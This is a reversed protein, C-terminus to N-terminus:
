PLHLASRAQEAARADSSLIITVRQDQRSVYVLGGGDEALATDDTLCEWDSGSRADIWALYAAFFEDLEEDSDWGVTLVLLAGAGGDSYLVWRDGDWGSAAQTAKSKSLQTDLHNL